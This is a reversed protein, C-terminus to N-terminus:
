IWIKGIKEDAMAKDEKCEFTRKVACRPNMANEDSLDLAAFPIRTYRGVGTILGSKQVIIKRM